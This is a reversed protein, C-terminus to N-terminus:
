KVTNVSKANFVGRVSTFGVTQLMFRIVDLLNRVSVNLIYSYLYNM